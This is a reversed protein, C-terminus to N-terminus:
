KLLKVFIIYQFILLLIIYYIRRRLVIVLKIKLNNNLDTNRLRKPGRGWKANLFKLGGSLIPLIYIIMDPSLNFVSTITPM